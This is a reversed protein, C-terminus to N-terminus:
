ANTESTKEDETPPPDVNLGAKIRSLRMMQRATAFSTDDKM